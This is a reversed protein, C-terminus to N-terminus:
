IKEKRVSKPFYDRCKKCDNYYDTPEWDTKVLVPHQYKMCAFDGEGIYECENCYECNNRAGKYKYSKRQVPKSM